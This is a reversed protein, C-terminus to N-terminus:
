DATADGAARRERPEFRHELEPHAPYGCGTVLVAGETFAPLGLLRDINAENIAATVFAGLGLHACVLYFTQSLHAADLLLVKYAKAHRPYKWFTRGYRSTMYFVAPAGALHDQQALMELNVDLVDRGGLGDVLDLAHREVSYHYIGPDLGTVNAAALYVETPHQAGGSPSTKRLITLEGRVIRRTGQCGWVWYLVSSLDSLCLPRLSDFGKTVTHRAALVDFFGDGGAPEPLTRSSILGSRRYFHTPPPWVDPDRSLREPIPEMVRDTWRTLAHFQASHRNWPPVALQRDRRRFEAFLGSSSESLLLGRAALRKLIPEDGDAPEAWEAAPYGSLINLEASTCWYERGALVATAVLRGGEDIRFSCHTTRRVRGAV